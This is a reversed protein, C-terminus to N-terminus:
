RWAPPRSGGAELRAIVSQTTGMSEALELQTLGHAERLARVQQGWDYSQRAVQYGAAAAPNRLRRERTEKWSTRANM